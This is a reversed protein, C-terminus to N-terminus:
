MMGPLLPPLSVTGGWLAPLMTKAADLAGQAPNPNSSTGEPVTGLIEQLQASFASMNPVRAKEVAELQYEYGMDFVQFLTDWGPRTMKEKKYTAPLLVALVRNDMTKYKFKLMETFSGDWNKTKSSKIGSQVVASLPMTPEAASPAPAAPAAAAPAVPMGTAPDIAPPPQAHIQQWGFFSIIGVVIICLPILWIKNKGAVSSM